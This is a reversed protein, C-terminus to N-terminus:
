IKPLLDADSSELTYQAMRFVRHYSADGEKVGRIWAARVAPEAEYGLGMYETVALIAQEASAFTNEDPLSVTLESEPDVEQSLLDNDATYVPNAPKGHSLLHLFAHVRKMGDESRCSPVSSCAGRRYVIRLVDLTTDSRDAALAALESEIAASFVVRRSLVRVASSSKSSQRLARM